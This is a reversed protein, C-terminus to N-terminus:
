LVIGNIKSKYTKDLQGGQEVREKKEALFSYFSKHLMRTEMSCITKKGVWHQNGVVEELQM